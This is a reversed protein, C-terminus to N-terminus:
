STVVTTGRRAKLAIVDERLYYVRRTGIIKRQQIEGARRLQALRSVSVGLVDAAEHRTLQDSPKHKTESMGLLSGSALVPQLNPTRRRGIRRDFM